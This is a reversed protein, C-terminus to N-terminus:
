RHDPPRSADPSAADSRYGRRDLLLVTVTDVGLVSEVTPLLQDLLESAPLSSLEPDIVTILRRIEDAPPAPESNVDV